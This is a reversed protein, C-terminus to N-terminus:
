GAQWHRRQLPTPRPNNLIAERDAYHLVPEVAGEPQFGFANSYAILTVVIILFGAMVVQATEIDATGTFVPETLREDLDAQGSLEDDPLRRELEVADREAPVVVDDTKEDNDSNM